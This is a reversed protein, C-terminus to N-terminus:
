RSRITTHPIGALSRSQFDLLLDDSRLVMTMLDFMYQLHRVTTAGITSCTSHHLWAASLYSSTTPFYHCYDSSEGRFTRHSWRAGIVRRLWLLWLVKRWIEVFLYARWDVAFSATFDAPPSRLPPLYHYCWNPHFLWGAPLYCQPACLGCHCWWQATSLSLQSSCNCNRRPKELTLICKSYQQLYYIHFFLGDLIPWKQFAHRQLNCFLSSQKRDTLHSRHM